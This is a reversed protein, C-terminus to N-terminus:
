VEGNVSQVYETEAEEETPTLKVFPVQVYMFVSSYSHVTIFVLSYSHVTIFVLSHPHLSMSVLSYSSVDPNDFIAQRAMAYDPRVVVWRLMRPIPNGDVRTALFQSQEPLLSELVWAQLITPFVSPTISLRRDRMEVEAHRVKAAIRQWEDVLKIYILRGWPYNNFLDPSDVLPIMHTSIRQSHDKVIVLSHILYMAALRRTHVSARDISSQSVLMEKLESLRINHYPDPRSFLESFPTSVDVEVPPPFPGFSLGTVLAFELPGFSFVREGIRLDIPGDQLSVRVNAALWALTPLQVPFRELSCLLDVIKYVDRMIQMNQETLLHRVEGVARPFNVRCCAVVRNMKGIICIFSYSHIQMFVCSYAHIRIFIFSYSHFHIFIFSLKKFPFFM